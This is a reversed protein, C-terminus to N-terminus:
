GFYAILAVLAIFLSLAILVKVSSIPKNESIVGNTRGNIIFHYIRKKYYYSSLYLPVYALKHEINYISADAYSLKRDDGPIMNLCARREADSVRRKFTPMADDISIINTDVPCSMVYKSDFPEVQEYDYGDVIPLLNRDFRKMRSVHKVLAESAPIPLSSYFGEHEGSAPYWETYYETRYETKEINGERVKYAVQRSRRMGSQGTWQTTVDADFLWIPVYMPFLENVTSFKKMNRPAWFGKSLWNMFENKAQEDTVTFPIIKEPRVNEPLTAVQAVYSTRCYPCTTSLSDKTYSLNAGCNQCKYSYLEVGLVENKDSDKKVKTVIKKAPSELPQKADLKDSAELSKGCYVCFKLGDRLEKGCNQCKM